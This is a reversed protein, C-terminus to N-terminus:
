LIELGAGEILHPLEYEPITGDIELLYSDENSPDPALQIIKVGYAPIHSVIDFLNQEPFRYLAM